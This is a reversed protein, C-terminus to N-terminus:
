AGPLGPLQPFNPMNGNAISTMMSPCYMSIALSTFMGAMAPSMGTNGTISSVASALTGGPQALMPCISQGLAVTSAPDGYNVGAHTLAALFGDDVSDARAPAAAVAAATAAAGLSMALAPIVMPKRAARKAPM